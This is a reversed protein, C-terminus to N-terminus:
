SDFASGKVVRDDAENQQKKDDEKLEQKKSKAILKEVVKKRSSTKKFAQRDEGLKSRMRNVVLVQEEIARDLKQVFAQYEQLRLASLGGQGKLKFQEVYDTRYGRLKELQEISEDQAQVSQSMKVAAATENNAAIKKVPEFRKSKKLM